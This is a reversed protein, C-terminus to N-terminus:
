HASRWYSRPGSSNLGTGRCLHSVMGAGQSVAITNWERRRGWPRLGDM